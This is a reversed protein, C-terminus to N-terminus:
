AGRQRRFTVSTQPQSAWSACNRQGSLTSPSIHIHLVLLPRLGLNRVMTVMPVEGELLSGWPLVPFRVRSWYDTTLFDRVVLGRPQDLNRRLILSLFWVRVRWWRCLPSLVPIDNSIGLNPVLISHSNSVVIRGIQTRSLAGNGLKVTVVIIFVMLTRFPEM